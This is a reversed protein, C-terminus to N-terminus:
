NTRCAILTITADERRAQLLENEVLKVSFGSPDWIVITEVDLACVWSRWPRLTYLEHYKFWVGPYELAVKDWHFQSKIVLAILAKLEERDEGVGMIDQCKVSYKAEFENVNNLDVVLLKSMDGVLKYKFENTSTAFDQSECWDEWETNPACYLGQPKCGHPRQDVKYLNEIPKGSYHFM